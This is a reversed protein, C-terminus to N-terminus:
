DGRLTAEWVPLWRTFTNAVDVTLEGIDSLVEAEDPVDPSLSRGLFVWLTDDADLKHGVWRVIDLPKVPVALQDVGVYEVLCPWTGFAEQILASRKSRALAQLNRFLSKAQSQGNQRNPDASALTLNFGVGIRLYRQHDARTGYMGINFQPEWRGGRHFLYWHGKHNGHIYQGNTFFLEHGTLGMGNRMAMFRSAFMTKNLKGLLRDIKLQACCIADAESRTRGLRDFDESTFGTSQAM